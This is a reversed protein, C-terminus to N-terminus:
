SKGRFLSSMPLFSRLLSTYPINSADLLALLAPVSTPGNEITLSGSESAAVVELSNWDVIDFGRRLGYTRITYQHNGELVVHIERRSLRWGYVPRRVLLSMGCIEGRAGNRLGPISIAKGLSLYGSAEAGALTVGHRDVACRLVIGAGSYELYQIHRRDGMLPKAVKRELSCSM